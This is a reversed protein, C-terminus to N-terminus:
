EYDMVSSLVLSEVDVGQSSLYEVMDDLSLSAYDPEVPQNELFDRVTSRNVYEYLASFEDPTDEETLRQTRTLKMTGYGLGFLLAFGAALSLSPKIFTWLRNTKKAEPLTQSVEGAKKAVTWQAVVSEFYGGPVTFPNEKLHPNALLSDEKM